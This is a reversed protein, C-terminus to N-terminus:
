LNGAECRAYAYADKVYENLEDVYESVYTNYDYLERNYRDVEFNYLDITVSDCSNSGTLESICFPTLPKTPKTSYFRPAEPVTCALGSSVLQYCVIAAVLGCIPIRECRKSHLCFIKKSSM